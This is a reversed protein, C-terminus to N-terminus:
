RSSTRPDTLEIRWQSAPAQHSHLSLFDSAVPRMPPAPIGHMRTLHESGSFMLRAIGGEASESNDLVWFSHARSAFWPLLALSSRWRAELKDAPVGHGGELSRQRVRAASLHASHLAVYVLNFRGGLERIREVVPCYKKTSLVTEIGVSAGEEILREMRKQSDEAARIFTRQLLEPRLEAEAWSEIGEQNLYQLTLADPNIFECSSLAEALFGDRVTTTKGAGNPGAIIWLHPKPM